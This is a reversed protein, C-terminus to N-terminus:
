WPIDVEQDEWTDVIYGLESSYVRDGYFSLALHYITNRRISYYDKFDSTGNVLPIRYRYKKGADLGLKNEFTLQLRVSKEPSSNADAQTGLYISPIYLYAPTVAKDETATEAPTNAPDIAILEKGSKYPDTDDKPFLGLTYKDGGTNLKSNLYKSGKWFESPDSLAGVNFTYDRDPSNIGFGGHRPLGKIATYEGTAPLLHMSYVKNGEGDTPLVLELGTIAYDAPSYTKGDADTTFYHNGDADKYGTILQADLRAYIRELPIEPALPKTTPVAPVHITARGVIPFNKAFSLEDALNDPRAKFINGGSGMRYQYSTLASYTITGGGYVSPYNRAFHNNALVIFDYTGPHLNLEMEAMGDGTLKFAKAPIRSNSFKGDSVHNHIFNKTTENLYGDEKYYYGVYVNKNNNNPDVVLLFLDYLTREAGIGEKDQPKFDGSGEPTTDTARTLADSPIGYNSIRTVVRVTRKCQEAQLEDRSSFSDHCASLLPLLLGLLLAGRLLRSAIKIDSTLHIM